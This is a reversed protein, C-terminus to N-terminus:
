PATAETTVALSALPTPPDGIPGVPEARGTTLDVTYLMGDTAAYVRDVGPADTVIALGSLPAFDVGLPGVTTLIGDNPPDQVVLVDQEADIEVLRTTPADAVANTYAAAAIRPRKGANRDRAAYALPADVATAGLAVNIRLNQGEASLVRLRDTQPNFAVGSRVDGDFPVTLTSVLSAAGAAPDIRYVDNATTLGYLHGDAPRTDVGVLRGSLGTPRVTRVARPRQADFVVLAGDDTSGVLTPAAGALFPPASAVLAAALLRVRRARRAARPLAWPARWIGDARGPRRKSFLRIM